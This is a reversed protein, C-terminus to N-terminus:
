LDQAVQQEISQKLAPPLNLVMALNDLHEREAPHDIDGVMCSALYVETKQEDTQVGQAIDMVSIPQNLLDFVLGKDQASLSLTEVAAFINKQEDNDIHGDAKASAIMAKMLTLQYLSAAQESQHDSTLNSSQHAQTAGQAVGSNGGGQQNHQWQQYVKFAAGGLMAAGGITAAKGAYKRAKKSGILLSVLGGAALGGAVGGPFSSSSGSNPNMNSFAGSGTVQNLIGDLGSGGSAGGSGVFQDFLQKVSM